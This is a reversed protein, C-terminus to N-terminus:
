EDARPTVGRFHTLLVSVGLLEHTVHSVSSSILLHAVSSYGRAVRLLEFQPLSESFSMFLILLEHTFSCNM